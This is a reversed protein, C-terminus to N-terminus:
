KLSAAVNSSYAISRYRHRRAGAVLARGRVIAWLDVVFLRLMSMQIIANIYIDM